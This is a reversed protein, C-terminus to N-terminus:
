DEIIVRFGVNYVQQFPAYKLRYSSTARHPRDRWSGGRVVKADDTSLDNRGDTENYPYPKYSTRTWEAVNGIMDHLGFANAKYQGTGDPLMRGDDFSEDRPVFDILPSRHQKPVPQPDVGRVALDGINTDALNAYNEFGTTGFFFPQDSGARAAWEWQAETPLNITQGSQEGLWSAFAMADNWNVRIAPMQPDNAPYGPFIHDKWQQNIFRSHHEPKFERMQANTVETTSMWFPRDIKVVSQPFEDREGDVSGMVFEGAPIRVFELVSEGFKIMKKEVKHNSFDIPWSSHTVAEPRELKAPKIFEPRETPLPPMWEIDDDIGVFKKKYEVTRKAWKLTLPDSDFETWTAHYPVNLDVWTVLKERAEDSLEVGHHGKDLIQFLESTSVHFDMPTLIHLDSEPGPRRVYPHLAMYSTSFSARRFKHETIDAFNPKDDSGDHCGACYQDLVPQIERKFGFGHIPHESWPKLEQPSKKSALTVNPLPATNSPEHCGVCSVTEGPQAALWSRMVQMANGDKDLPQISIPQSHPIKVMVSGDEEVPVTGLVRKMDWGGEIALADHNGTDRYAYGYTFLRLGGIEGQPIGELGPGAYINQIYLNADDAELNRREPIVRPTPRAKLPIPEFMQDRSEGLQVMNDFKDVMYLAWPTEPTMKGAVLFYGDGLPYPHVFMPWKGVVYQDIIEPEYTRGRGPIRYMAGDGEFSGKSQDFVWLEGQRSPGHHGSVIASFQSSNGPIQKAYFLTNPWYSNSGYVSRNDTGDPNMEMLIRTFYHSNDTYEWRSYQVKGNEKVWPYWANEQDFTLQRKGSGDANMEFLTGVYDSGGVCPVSNLSATSCYILKGNPLYVANYNDIEDRHTTIQRKGSGDVNMEYVESTQTETNIGSYLFKGADFHLNIDMLAEKTDSPKYIERLDGSRVNMAEISDSFNFSFKQKARHLFESNGRWNAPMRTSKSRRFIIEEFDVMPNDAVLAEHRLAKLADWDEGKSLKKFRASYKSADYSPFEKALNVISLQLDELSKEYEPYVFELEIRTMHLQHAPRKQNKPIPLVKIEFTNEGKKLPLQYFLGSDRYKPIIQGNVRVETNYTPVSLGQLYDSDATLKAILFQPHKRNTFRLSRNFQGKTELWCDPNESAKDFDGLWDTVKGEAGVYWDSLESQGRGWSSNWLCISMLVLFCKVTNKKLTMM